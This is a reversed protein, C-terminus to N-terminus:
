LEEHVVPTDEAIESEEGPQVKAQKSQADLVVQDDVPTAM